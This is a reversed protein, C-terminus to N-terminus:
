EFVYLRETSPFVSQYSYICVVCIYHLRNNNNLTIKQNLPNLTCFFLPNKGLIYPYLYTNTLVGYRGWMQLLDEM